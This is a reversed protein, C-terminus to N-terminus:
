RRRALAAEVHAVRRRADALFALLRARRDITLRMFRAALADGAQPNCFRRFMARAVQPELAALAARLQAEKRAFGVYVPEGSVLPRDLIAVLPADRSTDIPPPTYDPEAEAYSRNLISVLDLNSMGRSDVPRAVPQAVAFATVEQAVDVVQDQTADALGV